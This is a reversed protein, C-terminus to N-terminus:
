YLFHWLHCLDDDDDVINENHDDGDEDEDDNYSYGDDDINGNEKDDGNAYESIIMLM